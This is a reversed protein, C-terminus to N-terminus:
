KDGVDMWFKEPQVKPSRPKTKLLEILDSLSTLSFQRLFVRVGFILGMSLGLLLIKMKTLLISHRQFIDWGVLFYGIIPLVVLHEFGVSGFHPAEISFRPLKPRSADTIEIMLGYLLLMLSSGAVIEYHNKGVGGWRVPLLAFFLAAWGVAKPVLWHLHGWRHDRGAKIADNINGLCNAILVLRIAIQSWHM